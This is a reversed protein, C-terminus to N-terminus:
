TPPGLLAEMEDLDKLRDRLLQSPLLHKRRLRANVFESTIQIRLNDLMAVSAGTLYVIAGSGLLYNTVRVNNFYRNGAIIYEINLAM